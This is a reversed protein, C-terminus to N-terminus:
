IKKIQNGRFWFSVNSNEFKVETVPHNHKDQGFGAVLGTGFITQVEDDIKIM